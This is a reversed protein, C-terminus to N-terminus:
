FKNTHYFPQWGLLFAHPNLKRWLCCWLSTMIPWALVKPLMQVKISYSAVIDIFCVEMFTVTQSGCCKKQGANKKTFEKRIFCHHFEHIASKKLSTQDVIKIAMEIHFIYGIIEHTAQSSCRQLNTHWNVYICVCMSCVGISCKLKTADTPMMMMKIMSMIRGMRALSKKTMIKM